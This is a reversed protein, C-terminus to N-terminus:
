LFFFVICQGFILYVEYLHGKRVVRIGSSFQTALRPPTAAVVTMPRVPAVLNTKPQAPTLLIFSGDPKKLRISGVPSGSPSSFMLPRAQAFPPGGRGAGEASMEGQPLPTSAEVASVQRSSPRM